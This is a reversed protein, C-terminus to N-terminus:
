GDMNAMLADCGKLHDEVEEKVDRYVIDVGTKEM